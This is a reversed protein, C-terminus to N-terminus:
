STRVWEEENQSNKMNKMSFHCGCIFATAAVKKSLLGLKAAAMSKKKTTKFWFVHPIRGHWTGVSTSKTSDFSKKTGGLCVICFVCHRGDQFARGSCYQIFYTFSICSMPVNTIKACTRAPTLWIWCEVNLIWYQYQQQWLEWQIM